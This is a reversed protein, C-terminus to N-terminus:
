TTYIHKPAWVEGGLAPDTAALQGRSWIPSEDGVGVSYAIGVPIASGGTSAPRVWGKQDSGGKSGLSPDPRRCSGYGSRVQLPM